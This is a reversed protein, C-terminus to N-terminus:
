SDNRARLVTILVSLAHLYDRSCHHPTQYTRYQQCAGSLTGDGWSPHRKGLRKRYKDANHANQVLNYAFNNREPVPIHLLVRAAACLDMIHLPRM